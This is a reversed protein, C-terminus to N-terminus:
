CEVFLKLTDERETTKDFMYIGLSAPGLPESSDIRAPVVVLVHLNVAWVQTTFAIGVIMRM